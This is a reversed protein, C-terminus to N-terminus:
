LQRATLPLSTIQHLNLTTAESEQPYVEPQCPLPLPSFGDANCRQLTSRFKLDYQYGLLFIAWCQLRTAALTPLGKKPGLITMLPKHDTVLTFHRGYFYKHFKKVEYILALGEKEIQVNNREAPTLTHSAYAVAGVGYASADFDLLQLPLKPDYYALVESSALKEKLMQFAKKYSKTWSWRVGKGLLANLPQTLTSLQNIFRGYYNVLGLFACLEKIDRPEPAEVIAAVKEPMPHLSNKDVQLQYGLYDVSEKM